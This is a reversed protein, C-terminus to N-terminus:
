TMQLRTNVAVVNGNPALEKSFFKFDGVSFQSAREGRLVAVLDDLLRGHQSHEKRFEEVLRIAM